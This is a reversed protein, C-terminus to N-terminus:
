RLKSTSGRVASAHWPRAATRRLDHWTWDDIGAAQRLARCLGATRSAIGPFVLGTAPSWAGSPPALAQLEAAAATALPVRHGRRNKTRAPALVLATFREAGHEDVGREIECWGLGTMEGSRCATLLLRRAFARAPVDLSASANWLKTVEVDSLVRERIGDRLWPISRRGGKERRLWEETVSTQVHGVALAFGFLRRLGRLLHRGEGDGRARAAQVVGAIDEVTIIDIRQAM